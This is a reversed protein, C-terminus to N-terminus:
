ASPKLRAVTSCSLIKYQRRAEVVKGTFDQAEVRLTYANAETEGPGTVPGAIYNDRQPFSENFIVRPNESKNARIWTMTIRTLNEDPDIVEVHAVIGVSPTLTAGDPTSDNLFSIIPDPPRTPPFPPLTTDECKM